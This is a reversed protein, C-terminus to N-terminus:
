LRNRRLLIYFAGEGGHEPRATSFSLIHPRIRTDNLWGPLARRLVGEGRTGKGTIVLLCRYGNRIARNMFDMLNAHATDKGMGHLDIRADVHMKGRKFKLATRHDVGPSKGPELPLFPKNKQTAARLLPPAQSPTSSPPTSVPGDMEPPSIEPENATVFPLRGSIPNVTRAIEEWLRAEDQTLTRRYHRRKNTDM